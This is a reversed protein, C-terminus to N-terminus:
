RRRGIEIMRRMRPKRRLDEIRQAAQAEFRATLDDICADKLQQQFATADVYSKYLDLLNQVELNSWSTALKKDYSRQLARMSREAQLPSRPDEAGEPVMADQAWFLTRPDKLPDYYQECWFGRSVDNLQGHTKPDFEGMGFGRIHIRRRVDSTLYDMVPLARMVNNWRGLTLDMETRVETVYSDLWVLLSGHPMIGGYSWEALEATPHLCVNYFQCEPHEAIYPLTQDAFERISCAAGMFVIKEFTARQGYRRLLTNAIHAGMSHAFIHFTPAGINAFPRSQHGYENGNLISEAIAIKREIEAREADGLKRSKLQVELGRLIDCMTDHKHQSPGVLNEMLMSLVGTPAHQGADFDADRLFLVRARRLMNQYASHAVSDLVPMTVLRLLGPVFEQVIDLGTVCLHRDQERTDIWASEEWGVPVAEPGTSQYFERINRSQTTFMIPVLRVIARGVDAALVFPATSVGYITSAERGERINFLHDTYSRPIGTEWNVFIPFTGRGDGSAHRALKPLAAKAEDVSQCMNVLGGHMVLVIENDCPFVGDDVCQHWYSECITRVHLDLPAQNREHDGKIRLRAAGGNPNVCILHPYAEPPVVPISSCSALTVAALVSPIRTSM